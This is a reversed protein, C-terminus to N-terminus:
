GGGGRRRRFRDRERLETVFRAIMRQVEHVETETAHHVAATVYGVDRSLLLWYDLESASGMAVHSFRILEANGLERNRRGCGEAINAGISGATGRLQAAVGFQEFRPLTAALGYVKLALTHAGQWVRLKRFDEM